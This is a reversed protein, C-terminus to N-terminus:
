LGNPLNVTCQLPVSKGEEWAYGRLMLHGEQVGAVLLPHDQDFLGAEAGQQLWSLDKREDPLRSDPAAIWNGAWDVVPGPQTEMSDSWGMLYPLHPTLPQGWWAPPGLPSVLRVTLTGFDTEGFLAGGQWRGKVELCRSLEQRVSPLLLVAELPQYESEARTQAVAPRGLYLQTARRM